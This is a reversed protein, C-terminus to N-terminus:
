FTLSNCKSQVYSHSALPDIQSQCFKHFCPVITGESLKVNVSRQFPMLGQGVKKVRVNKVDVIWKLLMESNCGRIKTGRGGAVLKTEIDHVGGSTIFSPLREMCAKVIDVNDGDKVDRNEMEDGSDASVSMNMSSNKNAHNSLLISYYKGFMEAVRRRSIIAHDNLENSDMPPDRADCAPVFIDYEDVDTMSDFVDLSFKSLWLSDDRLFLVYDYEFGEEEEWKILSEWLREVAFHLRLLNRNANATRIGIEKSRIDFTPFRLDADEEPYEKRAKERRARLMPESDIDISEQIILEGISAGARGLHSRIFEEILISDGSTYNSHSILPPLLPDKQIHHLYSSQGSGSRYPTGALTTLFLYYDVKASTKVLPHILNEMMNRFIFRQLTGAVIIAVRREPGKVLDKAKRNYVDVASYHEHQSAVCRSFSRYYWHCSRKAIHVMPMNDANVYVRHHLEMTDVDVGIHRSLQVNSSAIASPFSVQDRDSYCHIEDLWSCALNGIYNQCEERRLDWVIFATDILPLQGTSQTEYKKYEHCQALLVHLNDSVTPWKEAARVIERCHAQLNVSGNKGVASPHLPMGMFSVCTGFRQVTRNFHRHYDSPLLVSHRDDMLLLKTDQWIIRKAWPFLLGPSLKLLKTNRRNNEYPLLDRDLPVLIHSGDVSVNGEFPPGMTVFQFFCVGHRDVVTKHHTGMAEKNTLWEEYRQGLAAGYVVLENCKEQFREAIDDRIKSLYTVPGEGCFGCTRGKTFSSEFPRQLCQGDLIWPADREPSLCIRSTENLVSNKYISTSSTPGTAGLHDHSKGLQDNSRIATAITTSTTDNKALFATVFRHEFDQKDKFEFFIITSFLLTASALTTM